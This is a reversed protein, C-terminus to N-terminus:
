SIPTFRLVFSATFSHIAGIGAPIGGSGSNFADCCQTTFYLRESRTITFARGSRIARIEAATVRSTAVEDYNVRYGIVNVPLVDGVLGLAGVIQNAHTCSGSNIPPGFNSILFSDHTSTLGWELSLVLRKGALNASCDDKQTTGHETIGGPCTVLPTASTAILAKVAVKLATLKGRVENAILAEVGIARDRSYTVRPFTFQLHEQRSGSGILPDCVGTRSELAPDYYTWHETVDLNLVARYYRTVVGGPARPLRGSGAMVVVTGTNNANTGDAYPYEGPSTFKQQYTGGPALNGKSDVKGTLSHAVTDNNTWKVSAGVPVVVVGPSFGASTISVQAVKATAAALSPQSVATVACLATVLAPALLVGLRTRALARVLRRLRRSGSPAASTM